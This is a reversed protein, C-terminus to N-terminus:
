SKQEKEDDCCELTYIRKVFDVETYIAGQYTYVAHSVPHGGGANMEDESMYMPMLKNTGKAHLMKSPLAHAAHPACFVLCAVLLFVYRKAYRKM